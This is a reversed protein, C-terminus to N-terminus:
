PCQGDIAKLAGHCLRCSILTFPLYTLLAFCCPSTISSSPKCSACGRRGTLRVRWDSGLMLGRLPQRPKGGNGNCAEDECAGRGCLAPCLLGSVFSGASCYMCLACRQKLSKKTAKLRKSDRFGDLHTLVGMVKPMGSQQLLMLFEFTEMEFGFAGDVMLLVLDAVKAADIMSCLDQPCELLTLRRRKGAVVTIPGRVAGVNQRTYHKILCSILTSKGVGPPGHVLVFFPPPQLETDADAAISPAVAVINLVHSNHHCRSCARARPVRCAYGLAYTPM